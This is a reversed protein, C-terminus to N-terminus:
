FHRVLVDQGAPPIAYRDRLDRWYEDFERHRELTLEYESLKADDLAVGLGPAQPVAMNGNEYTLKGGVLVDDVYEHYIADGAVRVEPHAAAVHLKAAQQVGLETGSHMATTLGLVEAVTYFDHLGRIGFSGQIDGLVLDAAQERAIQWLLDIRYCGDAAIPTQSSRRLEALGQTDLSPVGAQTTNPVRAPVYKIPEEVYELDMPELRKLMRKATPLSWCGNPDVRLKINPDLADRVRGVADVEVEPEYVGLKMKLTRFGFTEVLYRAHDVCNDLNVELEGSGNAGRFFFYGALPVEARHGRGGLLRYVPLGAAKGMIDWCALEIAIAEPVYRLKQILLLYDYPSDGLVQPRINEHFLRLQAGHAVHHTASVGTEGVGTIGADTHLRIFTRIRAPYSVGYASFIPAKFPVAVSYAELDTIKV